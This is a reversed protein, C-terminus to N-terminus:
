CILECKKAYFRKYFCAFFTLLFGKKFRMSSLDQYKIPQLYFFSLTAKSSEHSIQISQKRVTNKQHQLTHTDTADM